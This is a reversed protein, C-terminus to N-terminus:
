HGIICCWKSHYAFHGNIGCRVMISNTNRIGRPRGAPQTVVMPGATLSAPSVLINIIIIFYYILSILHLLSYVINIQNRIGRPRGAPQTVVMPGVTLSPAM